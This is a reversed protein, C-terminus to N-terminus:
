KERKLPVLDLLRHFSADMESAVCLRDYEAKHVEKTPKTWAKPEMCFSM